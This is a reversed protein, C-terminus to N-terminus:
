PINRIKQTGVHDNPGTVREMLFQLQTAIQNIKDNQPKVLEQTNEVLNEEEVHEEANAPASTEGDM